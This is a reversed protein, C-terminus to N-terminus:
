CLEKIDSHFDVNYIKFYSKDARAYTSKIDGNTDSIELQFFQVDSRVVTRSSMSINPLKDYGSLRLIDAHSLFTLKELMHKNKALAKSIIKREYTDTRLLSGLVIFLIFIIIVIVEAIM